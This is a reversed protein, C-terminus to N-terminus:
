SYRQAIAFDRFSWKKTLGKIAKEGDPHYVFAKIIAQMSPILFPPLSDGVRIEIYQKIRVDTYIFSLHMIWDDMTAAYGLYGSKMFQTFTMNKVSIWKDERFITVMPVRICFDIWKEFSFKQGFFIKRVGIRRRDTEHVMATRYSVYGSQKGDKLPSNAYMATIFPALRLLLHFKKAADAESTYDINGQIAAIKKWSQAASPSKKKFYGELVEYRNVKLVRMEDDKAFPQYGLGLWVLDHLKSMESLENQHIRLERALSHISPHTRGALEAMSEGYETTIHTGGRALDTIIKGEQKKIEWGVEDVLREQVKRLGNNGLYTMPSHSNRSIGHKEVEMGITVDEPKKIGEKFYGLLDQPSKVLQVGEEEDKKPQYGM